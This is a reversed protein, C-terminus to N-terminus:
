SGNRKAIKPEIKFVPRKSRESIEKECHPCKSDADPLLEACLKHFRHGDECEIFNSNKCKFGCAPCFYHSHM